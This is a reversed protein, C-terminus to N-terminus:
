YKTSNIVSKQIMRKDFLYNIRLVIRDNGISPITTHPFMFSSPFIVILGKEPKISENQVPFLLEGGNFDDNLYMLVSFNRINEDGNKEYIYESDYHFPINFGERHHMIAYHKLFYDNAGVLNTFLFYDELCNKLHPKLEVDLYDILDRDIIPLEYVTGLLNDSSVDNKEKIYEYQELIHNCISVLKKNLYKKIFMKEKTSGRM